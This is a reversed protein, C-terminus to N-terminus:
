VGTPQSRQVVWAAALAKSSVSFSPIHASKHTLVPVVRPGCHSRSSSNWLCLGPGLLHQHPSTESNLLVRNSFIDIMSDIWVVDGRRGPEATDECPLWRSDGGCGSLISERDIGQAQVDALSYVCSSFTLWWLRLIARSRLPQRSSAGAILFPASFGVACYGWFLVPFTKKKPDFPINSYPGEPYHYPSSRQIRTAHFGRRGAVQTTARITARSLM